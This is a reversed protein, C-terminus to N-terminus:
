KKCKDCYVGDIRGRERATVVDAQKAIKVMAPMGCHDCQVEFEKQEHTPDGGMERLIEGM